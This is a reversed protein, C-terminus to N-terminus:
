RQYYQYQDPSKRDLLEYIKVINSDSESASFKDDTGDFCLVLRKPSDCKCAGKEEPNSGM